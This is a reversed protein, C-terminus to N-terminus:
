ASRKQRDIRMGVLHRETPSMKAWDDDSVADGGGERGKGSFSPLGGSSARQMIKEFAEVGGKLQLVHDFYQMADPGAAATVFTKAADVRAQANSGLAEMQRARAGDLDKMEAVRQQAYLGIMAEFGSQDLGAQHAVQRAVSLLPDDPDIKFEVGEPLELSEPLKAEYKDASEPVAAKKGDIEAKLAELETMRSVMEPIKVGAADDWFSDPIGEPRQPAVPPEAAKEAPPDAPPDGAGGGGEADLLIRPGVTAGLLWAVSGSRRAVPSVAGLREHAPGSDNGSSISTPERTANNTEVRM